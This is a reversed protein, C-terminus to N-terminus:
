ESKEQKEKSKQEEELRRLLAMNKKVIRRRECLDSPYQKTIITKYITRVDRIITVNKDIMEVFIKKYIKGDSNKLYVYRPEQMKVIVKEQPVEGEIYGIYHKINELKPEIVITQLKAHRDYKPILNHKRKPKTALVVKRNKVKFFLPRPREKIVKPLFVNYFDKGNGKEDHGKYHENSWYLDKDPWKIPKDKLSNKYIRWEKKKCYRLHPKDPTVMVEALGKSLRIVEGTVKDKVCVLADRTQHPHLVKIHTTYKKIWYKTLFNTQPDTSKPLNLGLLYRWDENFSRWWANATKLNKYWQNELTSGYLSRQDKGNVIVKHEHHKTKPLVTINLDVENGTDEKPLKFCLPKYRLISKLLHTTM